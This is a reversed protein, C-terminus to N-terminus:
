WLPGARHCAHLPPADYQLRGARFCGPHCSPSLLLSNLSISWVRNSCTLSFVLRDLCDKNQRCELCQLLETHDPRRVRVSKGNRSSSHCPGCNRSSWCRSRATPRNVVASVIEQRWVKCKVHMRGLGAYARGILFRRDVVRRHSNMHWVRTHRTSAALAHQWLIVLDLGPHLFRHFHAVRLDTVRPITALSAITPAPAANDAACDDALRLLRCM